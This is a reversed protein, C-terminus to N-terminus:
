SVMLLMRLSVDEIEECSVLFTDSTLSVGPVFMEGENLFGSPVAVM